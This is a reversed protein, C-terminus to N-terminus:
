PKFCDAFCDRIIVFVIDRYEVQFLDVDLELEFGARIFGVKDVDLTGLQVFKVGIQVVWCRWGGVEFRDSNFLNELGLHM